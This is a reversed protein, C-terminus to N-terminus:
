EGEIRLRMIQLGGQPVVVSFLVDRGSQEAPQDCVLVRRDDWIVQVRNGTAALRVSEVGRSPKRLRVARRRIISQSGASPGSSVIVERDSFCVDMVTKSRPATLRLRFKEDASARHIRLSVMIRRYRRRFTAMAPRGPDCAMQRGDFRWGTTSWYDAHFPNQWSALDISSQTLPGHLFPM